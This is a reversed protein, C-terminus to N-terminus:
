NELVHLNGSSLLNTQLEQELSQHFKNTSAFFEFSKCFSTPVLVTRFCNPPLFFDFRLVMLVLDLEQFLLDFVLQVRLPM